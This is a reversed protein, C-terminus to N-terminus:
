LMLLGRSLLWLAFGASALASVTLAIRHFRTGEEQMWARVLSVILLIAAALAVFPVVLLPWV